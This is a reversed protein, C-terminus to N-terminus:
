LPANLQKRPEKGLNKGLYMIVPQSLPGKKKKTSRFRSCAGISYRSKRLADYIFM